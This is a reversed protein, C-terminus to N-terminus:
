TVQKRFQVSFITDSISSLLEALGTMNMGVERDFHTASSM